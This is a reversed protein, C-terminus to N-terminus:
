LPHHPPGSQCLCTWALLYDEPLTRENQLMAIAVRVALPDKSVTTSRLLIPLPEFANENRRLVQCSLDRAQTFRSASLAEKAKELNGSRKWGHHVSKVPGFGVFLGGALLLIIVIVRWLAHLNAWADHTRHLLDM